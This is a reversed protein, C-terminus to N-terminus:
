TTLEIQLTGLLRARFGAECYCFYYNWKRLFARDFGLAVIREAHADFADRWLRLTRAYHHGIDEVAEVELRAASGIADDLAQWCPLHGGPFIYRQIFDCGKRYRDYLEDRITIVQIVARGGPKLLRQCAAFYAPLNEHGVAELMEVSVIRDFRGEMQRYDAIQVDIRDQLGAAAVRREVSRKQEDSLTVTTVRCGTRRAAEIALSGWGSGIELLHHHSGLEAKDLIAQIKLRQGEELTEDGRPFVACSYTM